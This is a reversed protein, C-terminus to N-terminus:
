GALRKTERAIMLEENTPIVMVKPKGPLAILSMVRERVPESREGVGATFVIADCGGMIGSFQSIYRAVDYCFIDFALRARKKMGATVRDPFVYGPIKVGTISLVDRMDKYGSLGLLGSKKNMMEDVEHETMKLVRILYLPIAPDLDGCRTSMTLGELPTFGMTTEIAKGYMVATVSAGSGLHCSVFKLESYPKKLQRAAERTVYEHSLGHFGYKRIRHKTYMELPLSYIYAYDPLDRYFSTDFCAVHKVKPLLKRCAAIGALNAPNHLPALPILGALKKEVAPTLIVPALFDEGGHVVRHGVAKITATDFGAEKLAAFVSQLAKEHDPMGEPWDNRRKTGGNKWELFSNRLGIREVLGGAIEKLAGDFLKFKLSSSGSNIVLFM